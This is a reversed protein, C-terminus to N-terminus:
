IKSSQAQIQQVGEISTAWSVRDKVFIERQPRLKTEHLNFDDVTGIRLISKGPFAEGVRYMLTGCTSCFYNTMKKGSAITHSQGYSTLNDHGRIHTLYADDVTFNSAFMSATIKRCDTCHCVFTGVLGPGAGCFCTATASEEKSWGDNACSSLPIYPKSKDATAAM